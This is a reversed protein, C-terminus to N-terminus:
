LCTFSETFRLLRFLTRDLNVTDDSSESCKQLTWAAELSHRTHEDFAQNHAFWRMYPEQGAVDLCHEPGNVVSPSVPGGEYAELRRPFHLGNFPFAFPYGTVGEGDASYERNPINLATWSVAAFREFRNWVATEPCLSTGGKEGCWSLCIRSCRRLRGISLPDATNGKEFKGAGASIEGSWARWSGAAATEFYIYKVHGCELSSGFPTRSCVLMHWFSTRIKEEESFEIWKTQTWCLQILDM